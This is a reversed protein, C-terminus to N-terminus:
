GARSIIELAAREGSEMASEMGFDTRRTHEGAFHMVNWPENMRRAFANVQGPALSFGCGRQLPDNGWDKFTRVRVKGVSAPRIKALEALLFAQRKDPAIRSLRVSQLGTVLIVAQHAGSGMHNDVALFNGMPGDTGFSAPLGDELWFPQVELFIRATSHYPMTAVAQAAPGLSRPSIAVKRLVTFPIASIIFRAKYASGDLCTVTASADTMEIRGVQKHLRIIDGLADGMKRTLSGVGGEMNNSPALGDTPKAAASGDAPDFRHDFRGRTDEQWTRLVSTGDISIGGPPFLAALEIAQDSHGHRRLLERLSIDDGAFKPDLWDGLDVLPNYKAVLSSGIRMPAMTREDGVLRNLPHSEWRDADIWSGKYFTGFKLLDLNEPILKVEFKRCADIIRAYSRDIQSAGVDIPGDGTDVTCARGGVRSGAELVIPRFGAENLTLAANMGALGAGIVIVDATEAAFTAKPLITAAAVAAATGIFERRSFM